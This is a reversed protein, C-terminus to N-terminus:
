GEKVGTACHLTCHGYVCREQQGCAMGCAGCDSADPQLGVCAGHCDTKGQACVNTCLGNVCSEHAGCAHGCAGCNAPDTHLDVHHGNCDTLGDNLSKPDPESGGCGAVLALASLLSLTRM